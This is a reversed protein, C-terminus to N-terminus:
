YNLFYNPFLLNINNIIGQQCTHYFFTQKDIYKFSNYKYEFNM